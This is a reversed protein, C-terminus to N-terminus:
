QFYVLISVWKCGREFVVSVFIYTVFVWVHLVYLREVLASITFWFVKMTLHAVIYMSRYYGLDFFKQTLIIETFVKANFFKQVRCVKFECEFM